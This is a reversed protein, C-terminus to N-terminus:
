STIGGASAELLSAVALAAIRFFPMLFGKMQAAAPRGDKGFVPHCKQYFAEFEAVLHPRVLWNSCPPATLMIHLQRVLAHSLAPIQSPDLKACNWIKEM